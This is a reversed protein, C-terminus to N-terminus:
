YDRVVVVDGHRRTPPIVGVRWSEAKYRGSRSDDSLKGSVIATIDAAEDVTLNYFEITARVSQWPDVEIETVKECVFKNLGGEVMEALYRLVRAADKDYIDIEVRYEESM